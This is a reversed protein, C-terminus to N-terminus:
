QNSPNYTKNFYVGHARYHKKNLGYHEVMDDKYAVDYAPCITLDIFPTDTDESSDKTSMSSERIM